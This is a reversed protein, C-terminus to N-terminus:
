YGIVINYIDMDLSMVPREKLLVNYSILEIIIISYFKCFGFALFQCVDHSVYPKRRADPFQLPRRQFVAKAAQTPDTSRAVHLFRQKLM